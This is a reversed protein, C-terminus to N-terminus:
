SVVAKAYTTEYKGGVEPDEDKSCSVAVLAVAFVFLLLRLTKM